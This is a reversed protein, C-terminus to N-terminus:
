FRSRDDLRGSKDGFLGSNSVFDRLSTGSGADGSISGRVNFDFTKQDTSIRTITAFWDEAVHDHVLDIRRVAPWDPVSPGPSARSVQYCGDIEDAARGDITIKPWADFPKGSLVELRNGDFTITDVGNLPRAIDKSLSVVNHEKQGHWRAVLGDFYQDFFRAMLEKGAQNPHINDVLMSAASTNTRLLYDRWWSRQPEVALGYTKAIRPIKHYSMEDSWNRQRVWVLGKCGPQPRLTLQLGDACVPDPLVEGHDTQLIVDAATRSRFLRIIQEYARHDGYVHFIILDPFFASIDREATRVLAKSDFGGLARNQVVFITDPFKHRWHEVVAYHWGSNTISQGYFLVKLVKHNSPSSTRIIELSRAIKQEDPVPDVEELRTERTIIAGLLLLLLGGGIISLALKAILQM